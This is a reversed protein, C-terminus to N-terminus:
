SLEAGNVHKYVNDPRKFIVTERVGVATQIDFSAVRHDRAATLLALLVGALGLLCLAVATVQRRPALHLVATRATSRILLQRPAFWHALPRAPPRAMGRRLAELEAFRRRDVESWRPLGRPTWLVIPMLPRKPRAGQRVDLLPSM